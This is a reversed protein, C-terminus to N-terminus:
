KKRSERKREINKTPYEEGSIHHGVETWMIPMNQLTEMKPWNEGM